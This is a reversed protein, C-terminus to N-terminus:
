THGAGVFADALLGRMEPQLTRVGTPTNKRWRKKGDRGRKERVNGSTADKSKGM